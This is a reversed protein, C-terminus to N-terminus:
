SIAEPLAGFIADNIVKKMDGWTKGPHNQLWLDVDIDGLSRVIDARSLGQQAAWRSVSERTEVTGNQPAQSAAPTVAAPRIPTPSSKPSPAVTRAVASDAVRSPDPQDVDEDALEVAFQTGFGAAALARAIAQTEAKALYEPFQKATVMKHGTGVGGGSRAVTAKVLAYEGAVHELVQTTIQGDPEADRFWVLRWQANLYDKGKIKELHEDPKFKDPM